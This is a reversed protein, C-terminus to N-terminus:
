DNKRVAEMIAEKENWPYEISGRCLSKEHGKGTTVIIDHPKAIAIAKDIAEKRNPIVTYIHNSQPTLESSNIKKFKIDIGSAIEHVIKKPDEKRCDEETLIIVNAWKSSTEGMFPRKSSDRESASGFVHILRGKSTLYRKKIDMLAKDIAHPTHAFDVIVKFDKDYVTEMRGPPYSNTKMATLIADKGMGLKDAIAFGLLYNHQNYESLTDALKGLTSLEYDASSIRSYTVTLPHQFLIRTLLPFSRDDKNIVAIKSQRLLKSKAQVYNEYTIHYDLHEHTVNTIGGVYYEIGYVRYQDLAHSTTELVFYEDGADASMKLFKQIQFSSPTTTHLGTDFEKEGVKAYVTSVMSVKKGASKLIHYVLSTTTTKGDTGTIGIVKLRKSPFGYVINAIIAEFLHFFNKVVRMHTNYIFNVKGANRNGVRTAHFYTNG